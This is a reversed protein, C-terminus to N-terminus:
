VERAFSCHLLHKEDVTPKLNGTLMQGEHLALDFLGHSRRAAAAAAVAPYHTEVLLNKPAKTISKDHQQRSGDDRM